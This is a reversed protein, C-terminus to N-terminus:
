SKIQMLLLIIAHTFQTNDWPWHIRLPADLNHPMMVHLDIAVCHYGNLRSRVYSIIDHTRLLGDLVNLEVM